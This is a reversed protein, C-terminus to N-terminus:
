PKTRGIFSQKGLLFNIARTVNEEISKETKLFSLYKLIEKQLSPRLNEFVIKAEKNEKLTRVFKPHPKITRDESDIEIVVEIIEGLRSCRNSGM